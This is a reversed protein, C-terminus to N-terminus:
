AREAADHQSGIKLTSILVTEVELAAESCGVFNSYVCAFQASSNHLYGGRSKRVIEDM